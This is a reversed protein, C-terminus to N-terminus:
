NGMDEAWLDWEDEDFPDIGAETLFRPFTLGTVAAAKKARSEGAPRGADISSRAKDVDILPDVSPGTGGSSEVTQGVGSAQYAAREKMYGGRDSSADWGLIRAMLKDPFA